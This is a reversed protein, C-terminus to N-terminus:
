VRPRRPRLKREPEGPKKLREYRAPAPPPPEPLDAPKIDLQRGRYDTGHLAAAVEAAANENVMEVFAYGKGVGTRKDRVIKMVEIDGYPGILQALSLEDLDNPIGGIFLKFAM